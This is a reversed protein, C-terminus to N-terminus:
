GLATEGPASSGLTAKAWRLTLWLWAVHAAALLWAAAQHLFAVSWLRLTGEREVALLDTLEAVAWTLGLASLALLLRAGSIRLLHHKAVQLAGWLAAGFSDDHAVVRARALDHVVSLAVVV